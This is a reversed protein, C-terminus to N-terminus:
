LFYAGVALILFLLLISNVLYKSNIKQIFNTIIVAAPFLIFFFEAGNKEFTFAIIVVAILSHILLVGWSLKLKKSVVAIKPTVSLVSVILVTALFLIVSLLGTSKYTTFNTSITFNINNILVTVDEFYLLYSYYILIPTIVGVIPIILNKFSLRQFIIVAAYIIVVFLISWTYILAALGIWFGSDFLKKQTNSVSALSYIKRFGFLLFLNSFLVTKNLLTEYFSGMLFVILLLAFSNDLTLKNKKIIFNVALLYITYLAFLVIKQAFLLISFESFSFLAHAVVYFAFLIAVILIITAPKTKSFFNAPM